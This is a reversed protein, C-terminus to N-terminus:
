IFCPIQFESEKLNSYNINFISDDKENLQLNYNFNDVIRDKLFGFEIFKRKMKEPIGYLNDILADLDKNCYAKELVYKYLEIFANLREDIRKLILNSNIYEFYKKADTKLWSVLIKNQNNLSQLYLDNEINEISISLEPNCLNIYKLVYEYYMNFFDVLRSDSSNTLKNLENNYLFM